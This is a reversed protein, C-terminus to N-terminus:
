FLDGVVQRISNKYGDFFLISVMPKTILNAFSSVVAGSRWLSVSGVEAEPPHRWKSHVRSILFKSPVGSSKISDNRFHGYIQWILSLKQDFIPLRLRPHQSDGPTAPNVTFVNAIIPLSNFLVATKIIQKRRVVEVLLSLKLARLYTFNMNRKLGRNERICHGEWFKVKELRITIASETRSTVSATQDADIECLCVARPFTSVWNRSNIM